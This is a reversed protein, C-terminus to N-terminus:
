HKNSRLSKEHEVILAHFQKYLGADRPLTTEFMERLEDYDETGDIMKLRSFLRRTYVDIIFYPRGCAYLLISDATERGVGKIGLLQERTVQRYFSGDFDAAFRCFEKLRRAKQRYFGSPRVLRELFPLPAGAIKEATLMKARVLNKLAKEVNRWNTNQTLIAGVCVEFEKPVFHGSVPWWQQPGFLKLLQAYVRMYSNM